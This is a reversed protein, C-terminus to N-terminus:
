PRLSAIPAEAVYWVDAVGILEVRVHTAVGEPTCALDFAAGDPRPEITAYGATQRGALVYLELPVASKGVVVGTVRITGDPTCAAAVDRLFADRRVELAIEGMLGADDSAADLIVELRNRAGLLRTVEFEFSGTLGSGLVEGNLAVQAAGVVGTFTLWVHEYDDIRGPYGFRRTLRARGAFSALGADCVRAPPVFRRVASPALGPEIPECDWPGHLRIRHPYM